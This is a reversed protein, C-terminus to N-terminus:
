LDLSIELADKVTSVGKLEILRSIEQNKVREADTVPLVMQSFGQKIAERVRYIAGRASRVEGGLGVEGYLAMDPFIPANRFSSVLALLVGLDAGPESVRLGGPVNLFLDLSQMHIGVYKEIVALIFAARNSDVGAMVRKPIGFTSPSALAQIELVMPKSGEITAIVVSGPVDKLREKLFFSSPDSVERLGNEEMELLAMEMDPGFRNKLVRLVRYPLGREGELQLVTDVMHELAKPGAISGEKTVHGVLITTIGRAKAVEMLKSTSERVQTLTGPPSPLEELVVTQISDIVTLFPNLLEMQHIISDIGTEQLLYIGEDDLGLREGRLKVQSLTEEATVYLTKEGRKSIWSVLQLLLTSKGIGPEGGLLILSGPVIGGGLVRTVELSPLPLREDEKLEVGELPIFKPSVDERKRREEKPYVSNWEGCSPCRGM